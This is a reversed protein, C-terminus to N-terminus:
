NTNYNILHKLDDLCMIHIYGKNLIGITLIQITIFPGTGIKIKYKKFM